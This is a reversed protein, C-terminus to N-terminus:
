RATASRWPAPSPRPNQGPARASAALKSGLPVIALFRGKYGLRVSRRASTASWVRRRTVSSTGISPRITLMSPCGIAASAHTHHADIAAGRGREIGPQRRDFVLERRKILGPLLKPTPVPKSMRRCISRSNSPMLLSLSPRKRMTPTPRSLRTASCIWPGPMSFAGPNGGACALALHKADGVPAKRTLLRFDEVSRM